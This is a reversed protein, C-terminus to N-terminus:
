VEWKNELAFQLWAKYARSHSPDAQMYGTIFAHEVKKLTDALMQDFEASQDMLKEIYEEADHLQKELTM